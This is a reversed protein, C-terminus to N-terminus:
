KKELEKIRNTITSQVVFLQQAAKTFNKGRSSSFINKTSRYEYNDGFDYM